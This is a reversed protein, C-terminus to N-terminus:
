WVGRARCRGYGSARTGASGPRRGPRWFRGGPVVIVAVLRDEANLARLATEQRAIVRRDQILEVELPRAAFAGPPMVYLTYRRNAPSPLTANIEYSHLLPFQGYDHMRATIRVDAPPGQNTLACNIPVWRGGRYYGGLPTEVALGVSQAGAPSAAAIWLGALLVLGLPLSCRTPLPNRAVPM